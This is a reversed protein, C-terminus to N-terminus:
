RRSARMSMSTHSLNEDDHEPEPESDPILDQHTEMVVDPNLEELQDHNPDALHRDFWPMVVGAAEDALAEQVAKDAKKRSLTVSLGPNRFESFDIGEVQELFSKARDAKPTMDFLHPAAPDGKLRRIEDVLAEVVYAPSKAALDEPTAGLAVAEEIMRDGNLAAPKVNVLNVPLSNQELDLGELLREMKTVAESAVQNLHSVGAKAMMFQQQLTALELAQAESMTAEPKDMTPVIGKMVFEDWAYRGASLIDVDMQSSHEVGLAVVRMGPVDTVAIMRALDHKETDSMTPWKTVLSAALEPAIDLKVLLYGDLKVNRMRALLGYHHLQVQYDFDVDDTVINPVKYDVLMRKGALMTVDDPSGRLWEYGPRTSGQEIASLASVDRAARHRIMFALAALDELVTGRTMHENQRTPLRQMLKMEIIEPLTHFGSGPLQNLGRVVAGMESGGIGKLREVHWQARDGHWNAIGKLWRQAVDPAIYQGQPLTALLRDM